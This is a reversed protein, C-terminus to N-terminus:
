TESEKSERRVGKTVLRLDYVRDCRGKDRCSWKNDCNWQRDWVMFEIVDEMEGGDQPADELRLDHRQEPKHTHECACRPKLGCVVKWQRAFMQRTEMNDCWRGHACASTCTWVQQRGEQMSRRPVGRTYHQWATSHSLGRAGILRVSDRLGIEVVAQLGGRCKHVLFPFRFETWDKRQLCECCWGYVFLRTQVSSDYESLAQLKCSCGCKWFMILHRSATAEVHGQVTHLGPERLHTISPGLYRLAFYFDRRQSRWALLALAPQGGTRACVQKVCDGLSKNCALRPHFTESQFWRFALWKM